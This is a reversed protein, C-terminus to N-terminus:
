IKRLEEEPIDIDDLERVFRAKTMDPVTNRIKLGYYVVVHDVISKKFKKSMERGFATMSMDYLHNTKRWEAFDEFLDSSKSYADDNTECREQVWQSITDMDVKYEETTRKISETKKLGEKLYEVAGKVLWGLIQPAETMLKSKLDKDVQDEKLSLGFPITVIRRWIGKDTGRIEPKYNTAIILKGIFRYNFEEEYLHRAVIKGASSALTKVTKESLRDDKDLEELTVFRKKWLVALQTETQKSTAYKNVCILDTKATTAYDGMVTGIIDLLLSKGDNGNGFLMYIQDERTSGTMAYGFLRHIYDYNEEHGVLIQKLFAIFKVPEHEMDVPYATTQTMLYSRRHPMKEGTKLNYVGDQACILWEDRDLDDKVCPMLHQAESLCNEKGRKSRLYKVNKMEADYTEKASSDGVPSQTFKEQTERRMDETMSEVLTKVSGTVDFQWYKGNWVLWKKAEACYIVDNKYTDAFLRANGTDDLTYTHKVNTGVSGTFVNTSAKALTMERYDTRHCWKEVHAKDKSRFYPSLRFLRDMESKDGNTYWALKSCLALDRNSEDAGAGPAKSYWLDHLKADAVLWQSIGEQPLEKPLSTSKKMYTDLVYQLESDPVERIEKPTGFPHGTVTLFRYTQGSLYMEVKDTKQYYKTTDYKFSTRFYIHLGRGSPSFEVYSDIHSLIDDAEDSLVGNEDICRDIDIGGFGDFMGIGIGDFGALRSLTFTFSSFTNRDNSRAMGGNPSYPVKSRHEEVITGKHALSFEHAEQESDFSKLNKRGEMVQFVSPKFRWLCFLGDEKLKSPLDTYAM